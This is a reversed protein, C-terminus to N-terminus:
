LYQFFAYITFTNTTQLFFRGELHPSHKCAPLGSGSEAFIGGKALVMEVGKEQVNCVSFTGETNNSNMELRLRLLRVQSEPLTLLNTFQVDRIEISRPLQFREATMAIAMEVCASGPLVPGLQTLFHDKFTPFRHLDIETEWCLVGSFQEALKVEKLFPHGKRIAPESPELARITKQPPQDRYWFEKEKWPYTPFHVLQGNGYLASWDIPYGMTYLECLTNKLFKKHQEHEHKPPFTALYYISKSTYTNAHAGINHLYHKLVPQPSVEIMTNYGDKLAQTVAQYFLVCQRMNRWWYAQQLQNPSVKDGLVTSYMPVRMSRPKVKTSEMEKCFSTKVVNIYTSHFARTTSLIKWFVGPHNSKIHNGFSEISDKNGSITVNSQDNVAAICVVNELKLDNITQQAKEEQMGLAAMSGETSCKEHCKSRILIIQLAKKVTLAGSCCAAALEGLSHGVVASPHVGWSELLKYSAYQIAFCVPQGIINGMISEKRASNIEDVLSWSEGLDRLLRDVECIHERFLPDCDMMEKGMGEWNAGQGGFVFLISQKTSSAVGSVVGTDSENSAFNNLSAAAEEVTQFALSLRCEHHSRRETLSYCLNLKFQYEDPQDKIWSAFKKALRRLADNSKASLTLIFKNQDLGNKSNLKSLQPRVERLIAHVNSGGYGFSNIAAIRHSKDNKTWKECSEQVVIGKEPLKLKPNMSIINVTPLFVENKIMLAVKILGALGSVSETHNLNSKVSGIRLIRQKVASRDCYTNAISTTEVVDGIATGTGHAEVYEISTALLGSEELVMKSLETQTKPSPATMPNANQGDNNMGCAVIECYIDDNDAQSVETPKLIVAAFGEGRGYGDASTDFCKCRGDPALLGGISFTMQVNADLIINPACVIAVDCQGSTLCCQAIKLATLSSSCATDVSLSPGTLNLCFSIRNAVISSTTGTSYFQDMNERNDTHMLRVGYDLNMVGVFVGTKCKQLDELRLGADEIAEYVVQLLTRQQPDMAPAEHDSINFFEADFARINELFAGGVTCIRSKVFRKPHYLEQFLEYEEPRNSPFQSVTCKGNLLMEFYKEKSDVQPFRCSIGIICITSQQQRKKLLTENADTLPELEYHRSLTKVDCSEDIAMCKMLKEVRKDSILIIVPLLVLSHFLALLFLLPLICLFITSLFPFVFSLSISGVIFILVGNLISPGASKLAAVTRLEVTAETSLSHVQLIHINVHLTLIIGFFLCYFSVTNLPVHWIQTLVIVEEVHLIFSMVLLIGIRISVILPQSCLLVALGIVILINLAETRFISVVDLLLFRHNAPVIFLNTESNLTEIDKRLSRLQEIGDLVSGKMNMFLHVRSYSIKADNTTSFVIDKMFMNNRPLALFKQLCPIFYHMQCVGRNADSWSLLETLWSTINGTSYSKQSLRKTIDQISRQVKPNGYDILEALFLINVDIYKFYKRETSTFKGLSSTQMLATNDQYNRDYTCHVYACVTIIGMTLIVVLIKPATKTLLQGYREFIMSTGNMQADVDNHNPDHGQVCCSCYKKQIFASSCKQLWLSICGLVFPLFLFYRLPIAILAVLLADRINTFTTLQAFGLVVVDFIATTTIILGVNTACGAIRHKVSPISTLNVVECVILLIDVIGRLGLFILVVITANSFSVGAVFSIAVSSVMCIGMCLCGIVIIFVASKSTLLLTSILFIFFIVPIFIFLYQLQPDFLKSDAGERDGETLYLVRSCKLKNQFSKMESTFTKEWSDISRKLSDNHPQKLFYVIKMAKASFSYVNGDKSTHTMQFDSFMKNKLFPLTRGNSLVIPEHGTWERTLMASFNRLMKSDFGLIEFVNIMMCPGNSRSRFCVTEYGTINIVANHIMLAEQLCKYTLINSGAVPIFLIEERIDSPEFASLFKLHVKSLEQSPYISLKNSVRLRVFGLCGIIM